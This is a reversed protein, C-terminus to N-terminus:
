KNRNYNIIYGAIGVSVSVNLSEVLSSTPIKCVFDCHKITKDSVGKGENGVVIAINSNFDNTMIDTGSMDLGCVWVNNEKLKDIATSVNKVKAIKMDYAYGASSKIVSANVEVQRDQPIIIGDCNFAAANRIISGFNNPDTIHDLIIIFGRNDNFAQRYLIEEISSYNYSFVEAAIGQNKTTKCLENLEDHSIHNVKIKYSLPKLSNIDADKTVFLEKVYKHALASKIQNKGYIIM